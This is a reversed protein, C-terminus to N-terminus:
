KENKCVQYIETQVAQNAKLSQGLLEVIQYLGQEEPQWMPRFLAVFGLQKRQFKKKQCRYFKNESM